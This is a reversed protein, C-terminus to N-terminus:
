INTSIRLFTNSQLQVNKYSHHNMIVIMKKMIVAKM